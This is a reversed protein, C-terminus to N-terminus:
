LDNGDDSLGYTINYDGPQPMGSCISVYPSNGNLPPYTTSVQSFPLNMQAPANIQAAPIQISDGYNYNWPNARAEVGVLFCKKCMRQTRIKKIINDEVEEWVNGLLGGISHGHKNRLRDITKRVSVMEDGWFVGNCSACLSPMADDGLMGDMPDTMWLRKQKWDDQEHPDITDFPKIKWDESTDDPEANGDVLIWGEAELYMQAAEAKDNHKTRMWNWSTMIGSTVLNSNM